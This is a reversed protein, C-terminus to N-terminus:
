NNIVTCLYATIGEIRNSSETSQIIAVERLRSLTQPSQEQYLPQKGKFEGLTRFIQLLHVPLLLTEPPHKKFYRM